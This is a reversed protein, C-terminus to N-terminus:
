MASHADVSGALHVSAKCQAIARPSYRCLDEAITIAHLMLEDPETASCILGAREADKWGIRSARLIWELARGRGCFKQLKQVGGAGPTAGLKVEPLGIQASKSMVRFDCALALEFGGGLAYGNIAAIVPIPLKEIRDFLKAIKALYNDRVDFGGDIESTLTNSFYKLHAGCCFARGSGTIIIVRAKERIAHKLVGDLEDLLEHTLTNMEHARKMTVGVIKPKVWDYEIAIGM